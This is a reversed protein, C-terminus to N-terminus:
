KKKQCESCVGIWDKPNNSKNKIITGLPKYDVDFKRKNKREVVEGEVIVKRCKCKIKMKEGDIIENIEKLSTKSNLDCYCDQNKKRCEWCRFHNKKKM